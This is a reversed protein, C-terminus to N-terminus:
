GARLANILAVNLLSIFSLRLACLTLAGTHFAYLDKGKSVKKSLFGFVIKDSYGRGGRGM